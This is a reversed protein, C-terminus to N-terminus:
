DTHSCYLRRQLCPCVGLVMGTPFIIGWALTQVLIHTWLISDIPEEEAGDAAAIKSVGMHEHAAATASFLVAALAAGKAGPGM